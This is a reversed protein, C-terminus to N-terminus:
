TISVANGNPRKAFLQGHDADPQCGRNCPSSGGVTAAGEDAASLQPPEQGRSQVARKIAPKGAGSPQREAEVALGLWRQAMEMLHARDRHLSM